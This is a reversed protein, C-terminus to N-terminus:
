ARSRMWDCTAPWPDGRQAAHLSVHGVTRGTAFVGYVPPAEQSRAVCGAPLAALVNELGDLLAGLQEYQYDTVKHWGRGPRIPDPIVDEDPIAAGQPVGNEVLRWDGNLRRVSGACHVEIGVSVPNPHWSQAGAAFLGHGPGGAHNANNTIPALQVLGDAADRGLIFHACDGSGASTTWRHLLGNLSEPVMDTTHVVTAFPAIVESIRAPFADLRRALSWWGNTFVGATVAQALDNDLVYEEISLIQDGVPYTDWDSKTIADNDFSLRHPQHYFIVDIETSVNEVECLYRNNDAFTVLATGQSSPDTGAATYIDHTDITCEVGQDDQGQWPGSTNDSFQFTFQQGTDVQRCSFFAAVPDISTIEAVFTNAPSAADDAFTYLLFDNVKMPNHQREM